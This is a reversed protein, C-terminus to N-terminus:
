LGKLRRWAKLYRAMRSQDQQTMTELRRADMNDELDALKVRRALPHQAAREIFAEYSEDQQRTLCAVAEVIDEPFGERRLAELTWGTDEVIDHLVAVMREAPTDMTFMMRLPHLIYPGGAKDRQGSHAEAALRIAKELMVTEDPLLVDDIFDDEPVELEPAGEEPAVEEPPRAPVLAEAQEEEEAPEEDPAAPAAPAEAPEAEAVPAAVSAAAQEEEQYREHLETARDLSCSMCVSISWQQPTAEVWQGCESCLYLGLRVQAFSLGAREAILQVFRQQQIVSLRQQAEDPRAYDGVTFKGTKTHMVFPQPGSPTIISGVIHEPNM